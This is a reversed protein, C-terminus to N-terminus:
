LPTHWVEVRLQNVLSEDRKTRLDFHLLISPSSSIPVLNRHFVNDFSADTDTVCHM